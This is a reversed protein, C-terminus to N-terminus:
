KGEEEWSLCDAAIGTWESASLSEESAAFRWQIGFCSQDYNDNPAVRVAIPYAKGKELRIRGIPDGFDWNTGNKGDFLVRDGVVIRPSCAFKIRFEYWGTTPVTLRGSYRSVEGRNIPWMNTTLYRVGEERSGDKGIREYRLGTAPWASKEITTPEMAGPCWEGPAYGSYTMDVFRVPGVGEYTKQRSSTKAFSCGSVLLPGGRHRIVTIDNVHFSPNAYYSCGFMRTEGTIEFGTKATDAYCDRLISANDEMKFAVSNELMEGIKGPAKPGILGGWYHCRTLRNAGGKRFHFGTTWDVVVIDTYHCDGSESYIATNGALGKMTCKFYLNRAILEYGHRRTETAVALGYKKGNTFTIDDLTYHQFGDLSLCSALGNGDIKGGRVFLNYDHRRDGPPLKDFLPQVNIRIVFPMAKVARLVASKDLALSCLNTVSVMNALRYEGAPVHVTGSPNADIARQLRGSDDSEDARRPWAALSTHDTPVTSVSAHSAVSSASPACGSLCVTGLVFLLAASKM